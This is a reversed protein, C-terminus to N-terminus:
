APELCFGCGATATLVTDSEFNYTSVPKLHVSEARSDRPSSLYALNQIPNVCNMACTCGAVAPQPSSIPPYMNPLGRTRFILDATKTSPRKRAPHAAM